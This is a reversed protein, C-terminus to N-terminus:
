DPKIVPFSFLSESMRTFVEEPSVSKDLIPNFIIHLNGKM